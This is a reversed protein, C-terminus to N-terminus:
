AITECTNFRSKKSHARSSIFLGPRVQSIYIAPLRRIMVSSQSLIRAMIYPCTLAQYTHRASITTRQICTLNESNRFPSKVWWTKALTVPSETNELSDFCRFIVVTSVYTLQHRHKPPLCSGAVDMHSNRWYVMTALVSVRRSDLQRFTPRRIKIHGLAMDLVEQFQEVVTSLGYLDVVQDISKLQIDYRV